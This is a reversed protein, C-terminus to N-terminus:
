EEENGYEQLKKDEVNENLFKNIEEINMNRQMEGFENIRIDFGSIDKGSESKNEQNKEKDIL